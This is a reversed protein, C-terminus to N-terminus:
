ADETYVFVLANITANGHTPDTTHVTPAGIHRAFGRRCFHRQSHPVIQDQNSDNGLKPHHQYQIGCDVTILNLQM